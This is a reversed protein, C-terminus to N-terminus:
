LKKLIQIQSLHTSFYKVKFIIQAFKENFLDIKLKLYIDSFIKISIQNLQFFKLTNHLKHRLLLHTREIIYSYNLYYLSLDFVINRAFKKPFIINLRIPM